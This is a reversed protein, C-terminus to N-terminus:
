RSTGEPEPAAFPILPRIQSFPLALCDDCADAAARATGAPDRAPLLKTNGHTLCRALVWGRVHWTSQEIDHVRRRTRADRHDLVAPAASM